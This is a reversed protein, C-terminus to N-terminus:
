DDTRTEIIDRVFESPDCIKFSLIKRFSEEGDRMAFIETPTFYTQEAGSKDSFNNIKFDSSIPARESEEECLVYSSRSISSHWTAIKTCAPINTIIKIKKGNASDKLLINVHPVEFCGGTGCNYRSVLTIAIFKRQADINIIGSSLEYGVDNDLEGIAKRVGAKKLLDVIYEKEKIQNATLEASKENDFEADQSFILDRGKTRLWGTSNISHPDSADQVAKDFLSMGTFYLTTEFLQSFLKRPGQSYKGIMTIQKNISDYENPSLPSEVWKEYAGYWASTPKEPQQPAPLFMSALPGVHGYLSELVKPINEEVATRLILPVGHSCDASSWFNSFERTQVSVPESRRSIAMFDKMSTPELCDRLNVFSIVDSFKEAIACNDSHRNSDDCSIGALPAMIDWRAASRVAGQVALMELVQGKSVLANRTAQQLANTRENLAIKTEVAESRFLVLGISAAVALLIISASVSARIIQSKRKGHESAALFKALLPTLNNRDKHAFRQLLELDPSRWLRGSPQGAANWSEASASAFHSFRLDERHENIWLQLQHWHHILSEHPLEFWIQGHENSGIAFLRANVFPEIAARLVSEEVQNPLVHHLWARRRTDRSIIDAPQVTALFARKALEQEFSSLASYVADAQSALAGGVGHLTSLTDSPSVGALMGKWIRQLAFQLLPLVVEEGSAQDLLREVTADDIPHGRLIAPQMIADRLDASSMAPVLEATAAVAASLDPHESLRGFYDSRMTILVCIRADNATISHMLTNIFDRRESKAQASLLPDVIEDVNCRTYVEEFQDVLLILPETDDFHKRVIEIVGDAAGLAAREHLLASFEQSQKAPNSENTITRALADALAELPKDGPRFIVVRAQRLLQTQATAIAPVLGARAISSKGCGSPGVLAMLRPGSWGRVISELRSLLRRIVADRGFFIDGCTEDFADLGRFPNDGAVLPARPYNGAYTIHIEAGHGTVLVSGVANGSVSINGTSMM